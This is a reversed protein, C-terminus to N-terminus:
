NSSSASKQAKRVKDISNAITEFDTNGAAAKGVTAYGGCLSGLTITGSQPIPIPLVYEPNAVTVNYQILKPNDPDNTASPILNRWWTIQLKVNECASVPFSTGPETCKAGGAADSPKLCSTTQAFYTKSKISDPPQPFSKIRYLWGDGESSSEKQNTDLLKGTSMHNNALIHWCDKKNKPHQRAVELDIVVPVNLTPKLDKYEDKAIPNNSGKCLHTAINQKEKLQLVEETMTGAIGGIIAGIGIGSPGFAAGTTAGAAASTIVNGWTDQYAIQVSKLLLQHNTEPVAYLQTTGASLKDAPLAIYEFQEATRPTTTIQINSFCKEWNDTCAILASESADVKGNKSEALEINTTRLGFSLAGRPPLDNPATLKEYQVRPESACGSFIPLLVALILLRKGPFSKM